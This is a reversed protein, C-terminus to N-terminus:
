LGATFLWLNCPFFTGSRAAVQRHHGAHAPSHAGGNGAGAAAHPRSQPGGGGAQGAAFRAQSHAIRLPLTHVGSWPDLLLVHGTDHHREVLKGQLWEQWGLARPAPTCVVGLASGVAVRLGICCRCLIGGPPAAPAYPRAQWCPLAIGILCSGRACPAAEGVLRDAAGGPSTLWRRLCHLPLVHIHM